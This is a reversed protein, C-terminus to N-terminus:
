QLAQKVATPVQTDDVQSPGKIVRKESIEAKVYKGVAFPRPNESSLEYSVKRHNGNTLVWDLDYVYSYLGAQVQGDDSKTPQKAPVETIIAYAPEGQYTQRYYRQGGIFVGVALVLTLLGLIIKKM